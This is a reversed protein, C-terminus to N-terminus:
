SRGVYISFSKEHELSIDSNDTIYDMVTQLQWSIALKPQDFSKCINTTLTQAEM